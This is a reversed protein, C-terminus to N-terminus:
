FTELFIIITHFSSYGSSLVSGNDISLINVAFHILLWMAAYELSNNNSSGVNISYKSHLSLTYDSKMLEYTQQVSIQNRWIDSLIRPNPSAHTFLIFFFFVQCENM